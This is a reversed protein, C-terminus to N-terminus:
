DISELVVEVIRGDALPQRGRWNRDGHPLLDLPLRLEELPFEALKSNEFNKLEVPRGIRIALEDDPVELTIATNELHINDGEAVLDVVGLIAEAEAKPLQKLVKGQRMQYMRIMEPTAIAAPNESFGSGTMNSGPPGLNDMGPLSSAQISMAPDVQGRILVVLRYRGTSQAIRRAYIQQKTPEWISKLTSFESNSQAFQDAMQDAMQDDGGASAVLAAVAGRAVLEEESAALVLLKDENQFPDAWLSPRPLNGTSIQDSFWRILDATQENQYLLGVVAPAQAESSEYLRSALNVRKKASLSLLIQDLNETGGIIARAALDSAPGDGRLILEVLAETALLRNPQRSLFIALQEPTEDEAFAADMILDFRESANQDPGSRRRSTGGASVPPGFPGPPGLASSMIAQSKRYNQRPRDSGSPVKAIIFFPLASWATSRIQPNGSQLIHCLSHSTSDIAILEPLELRPHTSQTTQAPDDFAVHGLGQARLSAIAKKSDATSILELTRDQLTPDSSGILMHNLWTHALPEVSAMRAVQAIAQDQRIKALSEFKIGSVFTSMADPTDKASFVLQELVAGADPGTENVLMQNAIEIVKHAQAPDKPNAQLLGPLALKQQDMSMKPWAERILMAAAPTQPRMGALEETITQRAQTDESEILTKLLSYVPDNPQATCVMGSTKMAKAVLRHTLPENTKVLSELRAVEDRHAHNSSRRREQGALKRLWLFDNFHITWPLNTAISDSSLSLNAISSSVDFVAWLRVPLKTEFEDPLERIRTRLERFAVQQRKYDAERARRDVPPSNRRNLNQAPRQPRMAELLDARIKLVYQSAGSSIQAMQRTQRSPLTQQAARHPGSPRSPGLGAGDDFNRPRRPSKRLAQRPKEAPVGQVRGGPIVRHLKWQITEDPRVTLKRAFRPVDASLSDEDEKSKKGLPHEYGPATYSSRDGYGPTIGMGDGLMEPPGLSAMPPPHRGPQSRQQQDDSSIFWALFRGSRLKIPPTGLEQEQLPLNIKLPIQIIRRGPKPEFVWVNDAVTEDSVQPDILMAETDLEVTITPKTQVKSTQENLNSTTQAQLVCALSIQLSLAVISACRPAVQGAPCTAIADVGRSSCTSRLKM